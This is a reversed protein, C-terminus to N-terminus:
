QGGDFVQFSVYSVLGFYKAMLSCDPGLKMPTHHCTHEFLRKKKKPPPLLLESLQAHSATYVHRPTEVENSTRLRRM